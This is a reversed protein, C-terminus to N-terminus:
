PNSSPRSFLREWWSRQTKPEGSLSNKLRAELRVPPITQSAEWRLMEEVSAFEIVQQKQAVQQQEATQQQSEQHLKSLHRKM